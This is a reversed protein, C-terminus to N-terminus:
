LMMAILVLVLHIGFVVSFATLEEQKSQFFSIFMGIAASIFVLLFYYGLIDTYWFLHKLDIWVSDVVHDGKEKFMPWVSSFIMMVLALLAYARFVFNQILTKM